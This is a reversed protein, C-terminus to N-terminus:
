NGNMPTKTTYNKLELANYALFKALYTQLVEMKFIM